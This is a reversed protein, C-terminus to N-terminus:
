SISPKGNAVAEYERVLEDILEKVHVLRNVRYANKGAFAFGRELTGEKANRLADAICYPSERFNCTRLCKWNCTFPKKMGRSVDILFENKLARGPMGVPSQIIVVDDEQCKLYADKFKISADCEYTAVFRTAMQVGSAGMELFRYIDEGTYIGGAAIVPIDKGFRERFPIVAEIVGPIINELQNEPKDLDEKHFGLHGGALPGEVVVADPIRGYNKEWYTFMIRVGKANSVIPVFKTRTTRLREIDISEPLRLLLGTGIFIVDVGEDMSANILEDYNSLAMMINVGIIGKSMRRAKRIERQLARINAESYNTQIDPEDAGIGAAGIVGIGGAEAVASALGSLSIGVSMGGQVIPIRAILDDMILQPIKRFNM